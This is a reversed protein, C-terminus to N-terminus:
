VFIVRRAVSPKAERFFSEEIGRTNHLILTVMTTEETAKYMVNGLQVTM